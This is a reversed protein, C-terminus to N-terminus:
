EGKLYKERANKWAASMTGSQIAIEKKITDTKATLQEKEGKSSLTWEKFESMKKSLDESLKNLKASEESINNELNKQDNEFSQIKQFCEKILEKLNTKKEESESINNKLKIISENLEEIEKEKSNWTREIEQIRHNIKYIEIGNKIANIDIIGAISMDDRSGKASLTPLYESLQQVAKEKGLDNFIKLTSSYFNSLREMTLWTDDIGDSGMMVAAPFDGKGSFAYRFSHLPNNQCLSTTINLFCNCDWPVPESWNLCSDCAMLKGDGLHFAFWYLPTRAFAMLTTGYAKEIRAGKLLGQEYETFPNDEVDKSIANVWQVYIRAFLDTFASDQELVDKVSEHFENDQKYQELKIGDLKSVDVPKTKLFFDETEEPRATIRASKDLLLFAPTAQIFQQINDLAIEAAFKSGRDSRVYTDGGHGDCVISICVDGNESEWSLSYDQCPKNSKIHSAGMRTTNFVIM